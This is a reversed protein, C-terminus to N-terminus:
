KRAQMRVRPDGKEGRKRLKEQRKSTPLDDAAAAASDQIDSSRGKLFPSIISSWLKFIAFLPIQKQTIDTISHPGLECSAGGYVSVLVM